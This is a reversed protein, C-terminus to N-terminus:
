GTFEKTLEFGMEDCPLEQGYQNFLFTERNGGRYDM